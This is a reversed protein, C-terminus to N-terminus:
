VVSAGGGRGAGAGTWAAGCAASGAHLPDLAETDLGRAAFLEFLLACSAREGLVIARAEIRPSLDGLLTVGRLM